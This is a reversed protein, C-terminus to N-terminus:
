RARSWCRATAAGPPQARRGHGAGPRAPERRRRQVRRHAPRRAGDARRPAAAVLTAACRIARAPGDFAAAPERRLSGALPRPVLRHRPAGARRLRRAGADSRRAACARSLITALVRDARCRRAAAPRPVARHRRADRGPRRRVAPSRRRAARRLTAGPIQEAVYRGEDITLCRDDTRHLVLTPVRIAPLVHRVDIEANMRTLALAAGPSAGMRLYTSWWDRFAPDDARSPARVEIGVPGGWGTRIEDLFRERQRARRGGRITPRGLRAERLHRDDGAGLTREPYTTAFLACLPGGESVGLLAARRSGVADMVARVDDMRQELTPLERSAIPCAPAASTSSSSGRSRRWGACSARSRPSAGSTTSTRCGAWSSCSTSRATASCRTPSTSTAAARTAPRRRRSPRAATAGLAGIPAIRGRARAARRGAALDGAHGPRRLPLRPPARDRHLDADAPRRRAGQPDRPHLGQARRRRRLRRALGRRPVRGEDGAPRRARVLHHLVGFAKPTVAM